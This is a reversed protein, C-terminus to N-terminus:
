HMEANPPVLAGAGPLVRHADYVGDIARITSLVTSLHEPDGLEFEFRMSATRDGGALLNCSLINVRAEGLVSSVDRLLNPRDLSRVEISAVFVGDTHDEDWEVD